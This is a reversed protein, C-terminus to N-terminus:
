HLRGLELQQQRLPTTVGFSGFTSGSTTAPTSFGYVSSTSQLAGFAYRSTTTAPPPPLATATTTITGRASQNVATRIHTM